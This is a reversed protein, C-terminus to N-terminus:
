ILWFTCQQSIPRQQKITLVGYNIASHNRTVNNGVSCLVGIEMEGIAFTPYFTHQSKLNEEKKRNVMIRRWRRRWDEIERTRLVLNLAPQRARSSLSLSPFPLISHFFILHIKDLKQTQGVEEEEINYLEWFFKEKCKRQSGKM